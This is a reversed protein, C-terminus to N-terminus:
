PQTNQLAASARIRALEIMNNLDDSSWANARADDRRAMLTQYDYLKGSLATNQQTIAARIDAASQVPIETEQDSCASCSPAPANLGQANKRFVKQALCIIGAHGDATMEAWNDHWHEEQGDFNIFAAYQQYEAWEEKTAHHTIWNEGCFSPGNDGGFFYNFHVVFDQANHIAWGQATTIMSPDRRGAALKNYLTIMARKPDLAGGQEYALPACPCCLVNNLYGRRKCAHSWSFQATVWVGDRSNWLDPLNAFAETAQSPAMEFHSFGGWGRAPIADTTILCATLCVSPLSLGVSRRKM